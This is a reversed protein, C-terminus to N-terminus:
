SLIDTLVCLDEAEDVVQSLDEVVQDQIRDFRHRAATNQSDRNVSRRIPSNKAYGPMAAKLAREQSFPVFLERGPRTIFLADGYVPFGGQSGM